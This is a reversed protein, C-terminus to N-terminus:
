QYHHIKVLEGRVQSPNPSPNHHITISETISTHHIFGRITISTVSTISLHVFILERSIEVMMEDM